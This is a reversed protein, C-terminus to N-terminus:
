KTESVIERTEEATVPAVPLVRLPGDGVRLHLALPRDKPVLIAGGERFQRSVDHRRGAADCLSASFSEGKSPRLAVSTRLAMRRSRGGAGDARM